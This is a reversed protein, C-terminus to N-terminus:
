KPSMLQLTTREVSCYCTFPDSYHIQELPRGNLYSQSKTENTLNWRKGFNCLNYNLSAWGFQECEFQRTKPETAFLSNKIQM